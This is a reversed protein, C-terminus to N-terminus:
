KAGADSLERVSSAIPAAVDIVNSGHIISNSTVVRVGQQALLLDAQDAFVGHVAICIPAPLHRERLVRIAELMTRGSSIIDDVLVPTRGVVPGWNKISISVDRDGRRTKDLVTFPVNAESAIEAVWQESEQDPGIIVANSVNERVWVSIAPAAHAVRTPIGYIADLSRYRHLHPDVTVLWDFENSLLEAFKRSTVAEGPKFRQDQRMYSLYPAVLGVKAAGLERATTAAFILPLVKDDPRVLTCVIAVSRGAVNSLIRLYTEGDPFTRMEITGTDGSLTRVLQKAMAENGPVAIVLPSTM